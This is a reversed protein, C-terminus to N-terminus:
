DIIENLLRNMNEFHSGEWYIKQCSNCQYFQKFNNRTKELLLHKIKNKEVKKITGNCVTCRSFPKIKNKLDFRHIIDKLQNKSDQSRM